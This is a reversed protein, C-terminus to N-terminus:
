KVKEYIAKGLLGAAVIGGVALAPRTIKMLLGGAKKTTDVVAGGVDAAAGLIPGRDAHDAQGLLAAGRESKIDFAEFTWEIPNDINWEGLVTGILSDGDRTGGVAVNLIVDDFPDDPRNRTRNSGEAAFSGDSSWTGSFGTLGPPAAGARVSGTVTGTPAFSVIIRGVVGGQDSVVGHFTTGIDRAM